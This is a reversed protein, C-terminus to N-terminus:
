DSIESKIIFFEYIPNYSDDESPKDYDYNLGQPGIVFICYEFSYYLFESFVFFIALNELNILSSEFNFLLFQAAFFLFSLTLVEVRGTYTGEM